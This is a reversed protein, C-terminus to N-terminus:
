PEDDRAPTPPPGEISGSPQAAPPKSVANYGLYGAHSVALLEVLEPSLSPLRTLKDNGVVIEFANGGFLDFLMVAYVSVLTLTIILQQLKSLDISGANSAEEGDVLDILRAEFAPPRFILQGSVGFPVMDSRNILPAPERDPGASKLAFLGPTAAATFYSIGMVALLNPDLQVLLATGASAGGFGWARCAAAAIVGSLILWSWLAMQLRSLSYRNRGGALVGFPDGRVGLGLGTTFSALAVLTALFAAQRAYPDWVAIVGAASLRVLLPLLILGFLLVAAALGYAWRAGGRPRRVIRM